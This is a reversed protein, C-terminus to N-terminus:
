PTVIPYQALKPYQEKFVKQFWPWDYNQNTQTSQGYARPAFNGSYAVKGPVVDFCIGHTLDNQTFRYFATNFHTLCYSGAPVEFVFMHVGKDVLGISIDKGKGDASDINVATLQDLNDFVVAAIGDGSQLTIEQDPQIADTGCGTLLLSGLGLTMWIHLRNLRM